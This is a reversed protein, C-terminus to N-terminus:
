SSQRTTFSARPPLESTDSDVLVIRELRARRRAMAVAAAIPLLGPLAITWHSAFAAGVTALLALTGLAWWDRSSLVGRVSRRRRLILRVAVWLFAAAVSLFFTMSAIDRLDATEVWGPTLITAAVPAIVAATFALFALGLLVETLRTMPGKISVM